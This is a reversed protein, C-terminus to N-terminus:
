TIGNAALTKRAIRECAVRDQEFDALFGPFPLREAKGTQRVMSVTWM